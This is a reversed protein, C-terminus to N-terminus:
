SKAIYVEAILPDGTAEDTVTGSIGFMTQEIYNLLSRYNYNWFAPLQNAPLLKVNSLELTFERCQHFYMM